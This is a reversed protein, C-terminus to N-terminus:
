EESEPVYLHPQTARLEAAQPFYHVLETVLRTLSRSQRQLSQLTRRETKPLYGDPLRDFRISLLILDHQLERLEEFRDYDYPYITPTLNRVGNLLPRVSGPHLGRADPLQLYAGVDPIGRLYLLAHAQRDERTFGRDHTVQAWNDSVWRAVLDTNAHAEAVYTWATTVFTLSSSVRTYPNTEANDYLTLEWDVPNPTPGYRRFVSLQERIHRAGVRETAARVATLLEAFYDPSLQTDVEGFQYRVAGTVTNYSFRPTDVM